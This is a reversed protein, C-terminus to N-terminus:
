RLIAASAATLPKNGAAPLVIYPSLKKNDGLLVALGAANGDVSQKEHLRSQADREFLTVSRAGAGVKGRADQNLAIRLTCLYNGSVSLDHYQTTVPLTAGTAGDAARPVTQQGLPNSMVVPAKLYGNLQGLEREVAGIVDETGPLPRTGREHSSAFTAALTEQLQVTDSM